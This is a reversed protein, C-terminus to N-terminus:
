RSSFDTQSTTVPAKKTSTESTLASGGLEIRFTGTAPGAVEVRLLKRGASDISFSRTAEEQSDSGHIWYSDEVRANSQLLALEVQKDAGTRGDFAIQTLLEGKQVQVVFYYSTKQGTTPFAASIVGSVGVPTPKMISTSFGAEALVSCLSLAAALSFTLFRHVM